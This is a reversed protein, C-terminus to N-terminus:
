HNDLHCCIERKKSPMKHTCNCCDIKLNSARMQRWPKCNMWSKCRYPFFLHSHVRVSLQWAPTSNTIKFRVLGQTVMSEQMLYATSPKSGVRSIAIYNPELAVTLVASQDQYWFDIVYDETTPQDAKWTKPQPTNQLGLLYFMLFLRLGGQKIGDVPITIIRYEGAPLDDDDDDQEVNNGNQSSLDKKENKDGFDFFNKFDDFINNAGMAGSCRRHHHTACRASGHPVSLGVFACATQIGAFSILSVLIRLLTM